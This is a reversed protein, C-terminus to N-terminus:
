GRQAETEEDTVFLYYWYKSGLTTTLILHSLIHLIILVTYAYLLCEIFIIIINFIIIYNNQICMWMWDFVNLDLCSAVSIRKYYRHAKYDNLSVQLYRGTRHALEESALGDHSPPLRIGNWFLVYQTCHRYIVWDSTWENIWKKLFCKRFGYALCQALHGPYLLLSAPYPWQRRLNQKTTCIFLSCDFHLIYFITILSLCFISLTSMSIIPLSTVQSPPFDLLDEWFLYCKFLGSPYFPLLQTFLPIGTCCKGIKALVKMRCQLSGHQAPIPQSSLSIPLTM